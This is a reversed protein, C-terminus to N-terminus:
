TREALFEENRSQYNPGGSTELLHAKQVWRKPDESAEMLAFLTEVFRRDTETLSIPATADPPIVTRCDSSARFRGLKKPFPDPTSSSGPNNVARSLAALFEKKYDRILIAGMLDDLPVAVEEGLWDAM